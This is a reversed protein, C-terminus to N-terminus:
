FEIQSVPACEYEPVKRLEAIVSDVSDQSDNFEIPCRSGSGPVPIHGLASEAFQTALAACMTSYAATEGFAKAVAGVMCCPGRMDRALKASYYRRCYTGKTWGETELIEIARDRIPASLGM